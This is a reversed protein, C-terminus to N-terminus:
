SGNYAGTRYQPCGSVRSCNYPVPYNCSSRQDATIDECSSPPYAPNAKYTCCWPTNDAPDSSKNKSTDVANVKEPNITGVEVLRPNITAMIMFSCLAILLGTLSAGIWAKAESVQNANGGATLWLLGGFMLVVAALIGVIGIAYKYIAKIYKGISDPAITIEKTNSFDKDITIQPKFKIPDAAHALPALTLFCSLLLLSLLIFNKIKYNKIKLYNKFKFIMFKIKQM